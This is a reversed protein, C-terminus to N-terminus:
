ERVLYLWLAYALLSSRTPLSLSQKSLLSLSFLQEMAQWITTDFLM